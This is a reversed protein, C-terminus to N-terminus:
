SSPYQVILYFKYILWCIFIYYAIHCWTNDPMPVNIQYTAVVYIPSQWKLQTQWASLKFSVLIILMFMLQFSNQIITTELKYRM